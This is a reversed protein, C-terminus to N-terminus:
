QMAEIMQREMVELLKLCGGARQRCTLRAPARGLDVQLIELERRIMSMTKNIEENM